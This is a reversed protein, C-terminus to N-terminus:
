APMDTHPIGDDGASHDNILRDVEQEARERAYGYRKQVIGVLREANGDVETLDDDTLKGWQAKAAGKLQHWSGKLIDRNM